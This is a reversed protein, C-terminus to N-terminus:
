GPTGRVCWHAAALSRVAPPSLAPLLGLALALRWCRLQGVQRQGAMGAEEEGEGGEEDLRELEDLLDMDEDLGQPLKMPNISVQV